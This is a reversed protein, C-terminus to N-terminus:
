LYQNGPRAWILSHEPFSDINVSIGLYTDKKSLNKTKLDAKIKRFQHQVKAMIEDGTFKFSSTLYHTFYLLLKLLNLHM